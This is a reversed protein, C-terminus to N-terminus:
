NTTARAAQHDAYGIEHLDAAAPTLAIAGVHGTASADGIASAGRVAGATGIASVNGTTSVNGIASANGIASDNPVNGLAYPNSRVTFPDRYGLAESYARAPLVREGVRTPVIRDRTVRM